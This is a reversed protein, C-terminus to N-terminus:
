DLDFPAAAEGTGRPEAMGPPPQDTEGGVVVPVVRILHAPGEEVLHDVQQHRAVARGEGAPQFRDPRLAAIHRPVGGVPGCGPHYPPNVGAAAPLGVGTGAPEGAAPSIVAAAAAVAGE